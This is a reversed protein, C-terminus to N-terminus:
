TIVLLEDFRDGGVPLRLHATVMRVVGKGLFFMVRLSTSRQAGKCAVLLMVGLQPSRPEGSQPCRYRAVVTRIPSIGTGQGIANAARPQSEAPQLDFLTAINGAVGFLDLFETIGIRDGHELLDDCILRVVVPSEAAQDPIVQGCAGLFVV